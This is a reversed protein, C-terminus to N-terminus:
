NQLLSPKVGLLDCRKFRLNKMLLIPIIAGVEHSQQFISYSFEDLTNLELDPMCYHQIDAVIMITTLISVEYADSLDKPKM